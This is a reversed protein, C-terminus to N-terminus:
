NQNIALGPVSQGTLHAHVTDRLFEFASRGQLACTALATWIRESWARGIEGRTGQTIRRDLVVFRIAQEALNNTPPLGPTTVFTFYAAGHTRFRDALNQSESTSPVRHTAMRLIVDRRKALAREFAAASMSPRRHIVRFMEQIAMLLSEAYVKGRGPLTLLYKLDRILHAMCFQVRVDCDKMFKRYASFYDCSLIGKFEGGLMEWLVDSGRSDSIKFVAFDEARFCWTWARRGSEPHGTEDAHLRDQVPLRRCLDEYTGKLASSVKRIIKALYGGSLSLGLVDSFFKRITSYSAHCAGKLFGVLATLNPGLLGGTKIHRPLPAHHMRNCRRCFYARSHHEDVRVPKAVLEIQQVVRTGDPVHKLPGGCDPCANLKHEHIQDPTLRAREHRPHGPQGGRRRKSKRRRGSGKSPKVIDSSPPKSSNSSNKRAAALEARTASLEALTTALEVRTTTLKARTTTLESQLRVNEARLLEVERRLEALESAMRRVLARLEAPGLDDGVVADM